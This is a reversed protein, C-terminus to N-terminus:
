LHLPEGKAHDGLIGQKMNFINYKNGDLTFGAKWADVGGLQKM